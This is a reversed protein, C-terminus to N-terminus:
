HNSGSAHNWIFAALLFVSPHFYCCRSDCTPETCLPVKDSHRRAPLLNKQRKKCENQVSRSFLGMFDILSNFCLEAWMEWSQVSRPMNPTTAPRITNTPVLISLEKIGGFSFTRSYECLGAWNAGPPPRNLGPPTTVVRFKM